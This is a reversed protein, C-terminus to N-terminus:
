AFLCIDTSNIQKTSHFFVHAQRRLRSAGVCEDFVLERRVAMQNIQCDIKINLKYAKEAQKKHTRKPRRRAYRAAAQIISLACVVAM